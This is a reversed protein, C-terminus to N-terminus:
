PVDPRGGACGIPNALINPPSTKSPGAVPSNVDTRDCRRESGTDSERVSPCGCCVLSPVDRRNLYTQIWLMLNSKNGLRYVRAAGEVSRVSKAM